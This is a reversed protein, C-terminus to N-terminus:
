GATGSLGGLALLELVAGGLMVILAAVLLGAAIMLGQVGTAIALLLTPGGHLRCAMSVEAAGFGAAVSIALLQVFAWLLSGSKSDVSLAPLVSDIWCGLGVAAVVLWAAGQGLLLGHVYRAPLAPGALRGARRAPAGGRPPPLGPISAM